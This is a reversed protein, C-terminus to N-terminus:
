LPTIKTIDFRNKRSYWNNPYKERDYLDVLLSVKDEVFRYYRMEGRTFARYVAWNMYDIVSLCPEGKPTQAQVTFTTNVKTGWRQEFRKIGRRIAESLPVQRTRSGRKAFYIFNHEYRHMIDRFLHSVLLDYFATEKAQFNNRFVREIKRAVIFQARFDLSAILKFFRYRIEPLDDKAHFAVATKSLSPVGEFYPDHIIEHQLELVARRIAHPDQTEIFGLVLIPSCGAQGVILNGKRDYFTLDGSEDVFFWTSGPLPNKM